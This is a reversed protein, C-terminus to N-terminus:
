RKDIPEAFQLTVVVRDERRKESTTIFVRGGCVETHLRVITLGLGTGGVRTSFGLEMARDRVYNEMGIGNDGVSFETIRHDNENRVSTRIRIRPNAGRERKYIGLVSKNYGGNLNASEGITERTLELFKIVAHIANLLLEYLIARINSTPLPILVNDDLDLKVWGADFHSYEDEFDVNIAEVLESVIESITKSSLKPIDGAPHTPTLAHLLSTSNSAVHDLTTSIARLKNKVLDASKVNLLELEAVERLDLESKRIRKEFRRLSPEYFKSLAKILNGEEMSRASPLVIPALLLQAVRLLKEHAINKLHGSSSPYSITLMGIFDRNSVLPVVAAWKLDLQKPTDSLYEEDNWRVFLPTGFPNEYVHKFLKGSQIDRTGLKMWERLWLDEQRKTWNGILAVTRYIARFPDIVVVYGISRTEAFAELVGGSMLFDVAEQYSLYKQREADRSSRNAKANIKLTRDNRAEYQLKQWKLLRTTILHEFERLDIM